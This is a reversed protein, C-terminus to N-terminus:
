RAADAHAVATTRCNASPISLMEPMTQEDSGNPLVQFSVHGAPASSDTTAVIRSTTGPNENRILLTARRLAALVRARGLPPLEELGSVCQRPIVVLGAHQHDVVVVADENDTEANYAAGALTSLSDVWQVIACSKCGGAPSIGQIPLQLVESGRDVDPRRLGDIEVANAETTGLGSRLCVLLDPVQASVLKRSSQLAQASVLYSSLQLAGASVLYRSSQAATTSVRFEASALLPHRCVWALAQGRDPCRARM